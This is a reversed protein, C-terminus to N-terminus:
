LTDFRYVIKQVYREGAKLEVSPFQPKNPSDPWAQCEIAVGDHDRYRGGSKTTPTGQLWNGTYIQVGPQSSLVEVKRGSAECSLCGVRGLINKKWGDVV